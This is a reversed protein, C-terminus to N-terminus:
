VSFFFISTILRIKALRWQEKKKSRSRAEAIDNAIAFVWWWSKVTHRFLERRRAQTQTHTHLRYIIGRGREGSM